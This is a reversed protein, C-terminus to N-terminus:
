VLLGEKPNPRNNGDSGLKGGRFRMSAEQLKSGASLFGQLCQLSVVLVMAAEPGELRVVGPCEGDAWREGSAGDEERTEGKGEGLWDKL